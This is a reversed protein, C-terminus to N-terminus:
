PFCSGCYIASLKNSMIAPFVDNAESNTADKTSAALVVLIYNLLM